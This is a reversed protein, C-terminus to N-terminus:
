PKTNFTIWERQVMEDVSLGMWPLAYGKSRLYDICTVESLHLNGIFKSIDVDKGISPNMIDNSLIESITDEDDELDSLPKLSLIHGEQALCWKKETSGTEVYRIGVRQNYYQGKFTDFNIEM